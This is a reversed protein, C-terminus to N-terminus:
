RAPSALLWPFVWGPLLPRSGAAWTGAGPSPRPLPWATAGTWTVADYTSWSHWPQPPWAASRTRASRRSARASALALAPLTILGGGGAISDVFGAVIGAVRSVATGDREDHAFHLPRHGSRLTRRGCGSSGGVRLRAERSRPASEHPRRARRPRCIAPRARRVSRRTCDPRRASGRSSPPRAARGGATGGRGPLPRERGRWSSRRPRSPM